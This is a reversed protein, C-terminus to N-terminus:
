GSQQLQAKRQHFLARVRVGCFTRVIFTQTGISFHFQMGPQIKYIEIAKLVDSNQSLRSIWHSIM